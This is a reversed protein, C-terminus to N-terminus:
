GVNLIFELIGIKRLKGVKSEVKLIDKIGVGCFVRDEYELGEGFILSSKRIVWYEYNFCFLNRWEGVGVEIKFLRLRLRGVGGRIVFM